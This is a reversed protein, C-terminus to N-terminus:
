FEVKKVRIVAVKGSLLTGIECKSIPEMRFKDKDWVDVSIVYVNKDNVVDLLNGNTLNIQEVKIM